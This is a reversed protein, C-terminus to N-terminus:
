VGFTQTIRKVLKFDDVGSLSFMQFGVFREEVVAQVAFPKIALVNVAHGGAVAVYERCQHQGMSVRVAHDCARGAFGCMHQFQDVVHKVGSGM